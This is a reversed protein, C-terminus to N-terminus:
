SLTEVSEAELLAALLDRRNGLAEQVAQRVDVVMGVAGNGNRVKAAVRAANIRGFRTALHPKVPRPNVACGDEFDFALPLGEVQVVFREAMVTVDLHAAELEYEVIAARTSQLMDNWNQMKMIDELLPARARRPSFNFVTFLSIASKLIAIKATM